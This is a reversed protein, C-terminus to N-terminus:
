FDSNKSGVLGRPLNAFLPLPDRKDNAARRSICAPINTKQIVQRTTSSFPPCHDRPQQRLLVTGETCLFIIVGGCRACLLGLGEVRGHNTLGIPPSVGMPAM